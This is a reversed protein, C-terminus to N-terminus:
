AYAAQVGYKKGACAAWLDPPPVTLHIADLHALWSYLPAHELLLAPLLLPPEGAQLAFCFVRRRFLYLVTTAQCRRLFALPVTSAYVVLLGKYSHADTAKEVRIAPWILIATKRSKNALITALSYNNSLSSLLGKSHLSLKAFVHTCGSCSCRRVFETQVGM